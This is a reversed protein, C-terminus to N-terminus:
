ARFVSYAVLASYISWACVIVLAIKFLVVKWPSLLYLGVAVLATTAITGVMMMTDNPHALYAVPMFVPLGPFFRLWSLHYDNWPYDMLFFWSQPIYLVALILAVSQVRRLTRQSPKPAEHLDDTNRSELM